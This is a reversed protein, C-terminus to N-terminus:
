ESGAVGYDRPQRVFAPSERAIDRMQDLLRKPKGASFALEVVSRTMREETALREGSLLRTICIKDTIFQLNKPGL